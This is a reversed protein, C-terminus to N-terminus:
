NCYIPKCDTSLDSIYDSFSYDKRWLLEKGLSSYLNEVILDEIIAAGRGLIEKLASSFAESKEPVDQWELSYNEKLIHRIKRVSKEGFVELLVGQITKLILEDSGKEVSQKFISRMM